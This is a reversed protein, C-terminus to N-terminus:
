EPLKANVIKGNTIYLTDPNPNDLHWCKGSFDADFNEKDKRTITLKIDIKSDHSAATYVKGKWGFSFHSLKLQQGTNFDGGPEYVITLPAEYFHFDNGNYYLGKNHYTYTSYDM